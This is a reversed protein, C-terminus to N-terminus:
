GVKHSIVEPPFILTNCKFVLFSVPVLWIYTKQLEIHESSVSWFWFSLWFVKWKNKSSSFDASCCNCKQNEMCFDSLLLICHQVSVELVSYLTLVRCNIKAKLSPKSVVARPSVAPSPDVRQELLMEWGLPGWGSWGWSSRSGRFFVLEWWSAWPWCSSIFLNM